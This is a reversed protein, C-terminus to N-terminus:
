TKVWGIQHKPRVWTGPAENFLSQHTADAVVADISTDPDVLQRSHGPIVVYDAPTILVVLGCLGAIALRFRTRHGAEFPKTATQPLSPCELPNLDLLQHRIEFDMM